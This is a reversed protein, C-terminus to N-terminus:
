VALVVKGFNGDSMVREHAKAADALVFETGVIPEFARRALLAGIAAYARHLSADGGGWLMVGTVTSEKGMTKRPDIEVRGRSGVTVVRGGPALLDLDHDLNVNALMEIIVDVGRSGAAQKIADFYGAERHNFVHAAGCARVIDRGKDSSATGLVTAGFSSALQVAATGVGGSAGGAVSRAGRIADSARRIVSRAGDIVGSAGLNVSSARYIGGSAGLNVSSARPNFGGAGGGPPVPM